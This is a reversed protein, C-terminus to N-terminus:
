RANAYEGHYKEEANKRAKAADELREFLGLSIQKKNTKIFAHFKGSAKHMAVGKVGTKNDKRLGINRMNQGRSAARLNDIRNNFTDGDKHDVEDPLYGHHMLFIIRHAKVGSKPMCVEIYGDAITGAKKGARFNNFRKQDSENRFHTVPREKWYLEGDVYSFAEHAYEQTMWGDRPKAM